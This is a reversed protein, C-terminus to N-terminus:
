IFPTEGGENPNVEPNTGEEGGAVDTTQDTTSSSTSSSSSSSSSTGEGPFEQEQAEGFSIGFGAALAPLVEVATFGSITVVGDGLDADASYTLQAVGEGVATITVELQNEQSQEVIFVSEDSSSFTVTGEDVPASHGRKDQPELTGTVFQTSTLTLAM